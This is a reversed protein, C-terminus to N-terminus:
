MARHTRMQVAHIWLEADSRSRLQGLGQGRQLRRQSLLRPGSKYGVGSVPRLTDSFRPSPSALWGSPLRAHPDAARRGTIKSGHHRVTRGQADAPKRPQRSLSEPRTIESQRAVFLTECGRNSQEAPFQSVATNRQSRGVVSIASKLYSFPRPGPIQVRPRVTGFRTPATDEPTGRAGV